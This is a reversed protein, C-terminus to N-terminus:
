QTSFFLSHTIHLLLLTNKKDQRIEKENGEKQKIIDIVNM